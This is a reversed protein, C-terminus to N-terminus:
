LLDENQMRAHLNDLPITIKNAIRKAVAWVALMCIIDALMLVGVVTACRRYFGGNSVLVILRDNGNFETSVSIFATTQQSQSSIVIDKSRIIMASNAYGSLTLKSLFLQAPLIDAFLYGVVNDGDFVKCISSVIGNNEDYPYTNYVKPMATNRISVCSAEDGNFFDNLVQVALVEALAPVDGVGTSYFVKGDVGYLIAGAIEASSTCLTNLIRSVNDTSGGTLAEVIEGRQATSKTFNSVSQFYSECDLAAQKVNSELMRSYTDYFNNVIVYTSILSLATVFVFALWFISGFIKKNLKSFM